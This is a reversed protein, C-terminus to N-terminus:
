LPRHQASGGIGQATPEGDNGPGLLVALDEERVGRPNRPGLDVFLQDM